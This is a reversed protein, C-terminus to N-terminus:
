QRSDVLLFRMTFRIPRFVYQQLLNLMGILPVPVVCRHRRVVLTFSERVRNQRVRDHQLLLFMLCLKLPVPSKVLVVVPPLRLGSM